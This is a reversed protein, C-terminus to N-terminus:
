AMMNYIIVDILEDICVSVSFVSKMMKLSGASVKFSESSSTVLRSFFWYMKKRLGYKMLIM